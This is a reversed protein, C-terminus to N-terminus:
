CYEKISELAGEFLSLCEELFILKYLPMLFEERIVQYHKHYKHSGLMQYAIYIPANGGMWTFKLGEFRHHYLICDVLFSTRYFEFKSLHLGEQAEKITTSLNKAIINAWNFVTGKIAIHYILAIWGFKYFRGDAREYIKKLLLVILRYPTKLHTTAYKGPQKNRFNKGDIIMMRAKATYDFKLGKVWETTMSVEKEPLNYAASLFAPSFSAFAKNETDNM